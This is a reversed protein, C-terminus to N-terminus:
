SATGSLRAVVNRVTAVEASGPAIAAATAVQVEPELGLARLRDELYGRVRDHEPSGPPRPARAIEVLQSMARGSSFVTDPRNAPVPDPLQRYSSAAWGTGLLLVTTWFWSRAAAATRSTAAPARGPPATSGVEGSTAAADKRVLYGLAEMDDDSLGLQRPDM